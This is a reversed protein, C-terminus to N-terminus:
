WAAKYHVTIEASARLLDIRRVDVRRVDLGTRESLDAMLADRRGGQVLELRDYLMPLTVNRRRTTGLELGAAIAVVGVNIALLEVFSVRQNAVANLMALGIVIFLYTLDRIQITETRYRLVGFVAFLGLSFGLEASLSQLRVCLAFVVVNFVLLTFTVDHRGSRRRHICIVALAFVLDFGFRSLFRLLSPGDAVSGLGFLESM